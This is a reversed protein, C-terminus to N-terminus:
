AAASAIRTRLSPDAEELAALLAGAAYDAWMQPARQFTPALTLDIDPPNGKHLWRLAFLLREANFEFRKGNEAPM